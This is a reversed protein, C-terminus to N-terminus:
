LQVREVGNGPLMADDLRGAAELRAKLLTFDTKTVKDIPLGIEVAIHEATHPSFVRNAPRRYIKRGDFDIEYNLPVLSVFRDELQHQKERLVDIQVQLDRHQESITFVQSELPPPAPRPVADTM